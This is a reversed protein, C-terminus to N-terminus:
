GRALPATWSSPWLLWHGVRFQRLLLPFLAFLLIAIAFLCWVAQAENIDDTLQNAIIPGVLAHFVVFKWSGYLVPLLFVALMYTPFGWNVGFFDDAKLALGNYPIDWAIHWTGYRLCLENGCLPQGAGCTGAWEFPYLQILMFAASAFCLCYVGISIKKSVEGPILQMAFANIFFPQFVIHFYSLLTIVQNAPTGCANAVMYGATQLAEMLTFYGLTMWIATPVLRRAAYITTATGAAVMTASAALGWCM